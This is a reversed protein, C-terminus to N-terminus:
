FRFTSRALCIEAEGSCGGGALLQRAARGTERLVNSGCLSSNQGGSDEQHDLQLLKM